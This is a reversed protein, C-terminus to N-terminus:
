RQKEAAKVARSCRWAAVSSRWLRSWFGTSNLVYGCQEVWVKAPIRNIMERRAFMTNNM